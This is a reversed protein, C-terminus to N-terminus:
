QLAGDSRRQAESILEMVVSPLRRTTLTQIMASPLITDTLVNVSYSVSTGEKLQKLRWYGTNSHFFGDILTWRLEFGDSTNSSELSLTYNLNRIMFLRFSVEWIPPGVKIINVEKLGSFVQTYNDFDLIIERLLSLPYECNQNYEASPM